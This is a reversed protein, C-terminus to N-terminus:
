TSAVGEQPMTGESHGSSPSHLGSRRSRTFSLYKNAVTLVETALYVLFLLTPLSMSFFLAGYSWSTGEHFAYQTLSLVIMFLGVYFCWFWVFHGVALLIEPVFISKAAHKAEWDSLIFAAVAAGLNLAVAFYCTLAIYYWRPCNGEKHDCTSLPKDGDAMPHAYNNPDHFFSFLQAAVSAALGSLVAAGHYSLIEANM